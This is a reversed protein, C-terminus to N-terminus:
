MLADTRLLRLADLARNFVGRRQWDRYAQWANNRIGNKCEMAKWSNGSKIKELVSEFLERQSIKYAEESKGLLLPKIAEWEANSLRVDSLPLPAIQSLQNRSLNTDFILSPFAPLDIFSHEHAQIRSIALKAAFYTGGVKRGSIRCRIEARPLSLGVIGRMANEHVSHAMVNASPFTYMWRLCSDLIPNTWSHYRSDTKTYMVFQHEDMFGIDDLPQPRFMIPLLIKAPHFLARMLVLAPVQVTTNRVKFEFVDHKGRRVASSDIGYTTAYDGPDVVSWSSFNTICSQKSQMKSTMPAGQYAFNDLNLTIKGRQRDMIYGVLEGDETGIGIAWNM